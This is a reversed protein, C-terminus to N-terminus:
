TSAILMEAFDFLHVSSFPAVSSDPASPLLTRDVLEAVRFSSSLSSSASPYLGLKLRSNVFRAVTRARALHRNWSIYSLHMYILKANLIITRRGHWISLSSNPCVPRERLKYPKHELIAVVKLVGRRRPPGDETRKMLESVKLGVQSFEPRLYCPTPNQTCGHTKSETLM